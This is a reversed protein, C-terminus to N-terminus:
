DRSIVDTLGRVFGTFFCIFLLIFYWLIDLYMSEYAMPRIYPLKLFISTIASILTPALIGLSVGIITSLAALVISLTMFSFLLGKFTFGASTLVRITRRAEVSSSGALFFGAMCAMAYILNTILRVNREASIIVSILLTPIAPVIMAHPIPESSERVEWEYLTKWELDLLAATEDLIILSYDLYDNSSIIGTINLKLGNIYAIPLGIQDRLKSGVLAEGFGPLSGKLRARHLDLYVSVNSVSILLADINEITIHVVNVKVAKVGAPRQSSIALSPRSYLEVIAMVDHVYAETMGKLGVVVALFISAILVLYKVKLEGRAAISMIIVALSM